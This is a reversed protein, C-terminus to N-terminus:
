GYKEQNTKWYFRFNFDTNRLDLLTFTIYKTKLSRLLITLEKEQLIQPLQPNDVIGTKFYFPQGDIEKMYNIETDSIYVEKVDGSEVSNMFDFYTTTQVRYSLIKPM